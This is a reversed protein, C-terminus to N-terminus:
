HLFAAFVTSFGLQFLRPNVQRNMLRLDYLATSYYFTDLAKSLNM